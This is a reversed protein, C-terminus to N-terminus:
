SAAPCTRRWCSRWCRSIRKTQAYAVAGGDYPRRQWDCDDLSLRQTYMGGSSAFIARPIRPPACSRCCPRPSGGPDSSTRPLRSSTITSPSSASRRCSAPTTCSYTSVPLPSRRPSIGYRRPHPFMWCAWTFADRAPESGGGRAARGRRAQPRPVALMWVTAGREALSAATEFGIGSNAGTVLCVRGALDVALDDPRFTAAHRDFGPRRDFSFFISADLARDCATRLSHPTM